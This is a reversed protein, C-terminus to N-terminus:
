YIKFQKALVIDGIDLFSFTFSAFLIIVQLKRLFNGVAPKGVSTIKSRDLKICLDPQGDEGVVKQIQVLGDGAELMVRLIVFRANMHAKLFCM